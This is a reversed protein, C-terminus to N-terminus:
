IITPQPLFTTFGNPQQHAFEILALTTAFRRSNIAKSAAARHEEDKFCLRKGNPLTLTFSGQKTRKEKM